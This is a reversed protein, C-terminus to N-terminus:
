AAGGGDPGADRPAALPPAAHLSVSAVTGKGPESAYDLRGGYETVISESISVGLGVGGLDHKTTFFPDKIRGLLDPSMGRGEDGVVLRVLGCSEDYSTSVRIAQDPDTLAQCSNQLLNVAVQELRQFHARVPPLGDALDLELRRTTKKIYNSLLTLAAKVVLNLAVDELEPGDEGRAYDKLGRVIADIDRSAAAIGSLLLPAETRAESWEMGGVLDGERGELARSLLPAISAWLEALIDANLAITHNPNNIEHAVGAVLEGLSALKEAQILQRRQIREREEANIRDTVDLFTAMIMDGSAAGVSKGFAEIWTGEGAGMRFPGVRSEEGRLLPGLVPGAEAPLALLWESLSLGQSLRPTLGFLGGATGNCYIIAEDRAIVIGLPSEEALASFKEANERRAREARRRATLDMATRLFGSRGSSLPGLPVTWFEWVLLEGEKTLIQREGEASLFSLEPEGFVKREWEALTPTEAISYGTSRVWARNLFEINGVDDHIMVPYPIQGTIMRIREEGILLGLASEKESLEQPM